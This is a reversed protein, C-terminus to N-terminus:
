RAFRRRPGPGRSEGPRRSRSSGFGPARPPPAQAAACRPRDMAARRAVRRGPRRRGPPSRPAGARALPIPDQEGVGLAARRKVAIRAQQVYQEALTDESRHRSSRQDAAEPIHGPAEGEIQEVAAAHRIDCAVGVIVVPTRRADCRLDGVGAERGPGLPEGLRDRRRDELTGRLHRWLGAFRTRSPCGPAAEPM